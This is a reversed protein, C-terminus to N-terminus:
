GIVLLDLKKWQRFAKDTTVLRYGGAVAYAALYADMWLKPSSTGQSAFQRWISQLGEPEDCYTIRPDALYADFVAWADKNPLPSVGYREMVVGTTLLRFLGQQSARCFVAHVGRQQIWASSRAHYVHLDLTLALWINIDPLFTM